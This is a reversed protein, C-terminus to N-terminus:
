GMCTRHGMAATSHNGLFTQEQALLLLVAKAARGQRRDRLGMRISGTIRAMFLQRDCSGDREPPFILMTM